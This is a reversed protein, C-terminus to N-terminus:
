SLLSPAPDTPAEVVTKQNKIWDQVLAIRKSESLLKWREFADRDMEDSPEPEKLWPAYHIGQGIAPIEINIENLGAYVDQNATDLQAVAFSLNMTGSTLIDGFPRLGKVKKGTPSIYNLPVEMAYITYTKSEDLDSSEARIKDMADNVFEQLENSYHVKSGDSVEDKFRWVDYNTGHSNNMNEYYQNFSIKGQFCLPASYSPGVSKSEGSLLGNDIGFMLQMSMDLKDWSLKTTKYHEINDKEALFMIYVSTPNEKISSFNSFTRKHALTQKSLYFDKISGSKTFLRMGTEKSKIGVVHTAINEIIPVPQANKTDTTLTFIENLTDKERLYLAAEGFERYVTVKSKNESHVGVNVDKNLLKIIKTGLEQDSFKKPLYMKFDGDSDSIWLRYNMSRFGGENVYREFENVPEDEEIIGLYEMLKSTYNITNYIHEGADHIFENFVIRGKSTLPKMGLIKAEGFNYFPTFEVSSLTESQQKEFYKALERGPDCSFDTVKMPYILAEYSPGDLNWLGDIRDYGLKVAMVQNYQTNLVLQLKVKHYPSIRNSRKEGLWTHYSQWNESNPEAILLRCFGIDEARVAGKIISFNNAFEVFLDEDGQEFLKTQVPFIRNFAGNVTRVPPQISVNKERPLPAPYVDAKGSKLTKEASEKVQDELQKLKDANEDYFRHLRISNIWAIGLNQTWTFVKWDDSFIYSTIYEKVRFLELKEQSVTGHEFKIWALIYMLGNLAFARLKFRKLLEQSTNKDKLFEGVEEYSNHTKNLDIDIKKIENLMEMNLRSLIVLNDLKDINKFYEKINHDFLTEDMVTMASKLVKGSESVVLLGRAFPALVPIFQAFNIFSDFVALQLDTEADDEKKMAEVATLRNREMAQYGFRSPSYVVDLSALYINVVVRRNVALKPNDRRIERPDDPIYIPASEGYAKVTIFKHFSEPFLAKTNEARERSVRMNIAESSVQCAHGEIEIRLQSESTLAEVLVDIVGKNDDLEQKRSNFHFLVRLGTGREDTILEVQDQADPNRSQLMSGDAIKQKAQTIAKNIRDADQYWNERLVPIKDLYDDAIVTLDKRAGVTKKKADVLSKYNDYLSKMSTATSIFSLGKDSLGSIGGSWTEAVRGSLSTFKKNEFDSMFGQIFEKGKSVSLFKESFLARAGIGREANTLNDKSLKAFHDWAEKVGFLGFYLEGTARMAEPMDDQLSDWYMQSVSNLAAIKGEEIYQGQLGGTLCGIGLQASADRVSKLTSLSNLTPSSVGEAGKDNSLYRRMGNLFQPFQYMLTEELSIMDGNIIAIKGLPSDSNFKIYERLEYSYEENVGDNKYNINSKTFSNPIEKKGIESKFKVKITYLGDDVNNSDLHFIACPESVENSEQQKFEKAKTLFEDEFKDKGFEDYSHLSVEANVYDKNSFVVAVTSVVPLIFGNLPEGKEKVETLWTNYNEKERTLEGNVDKEFPKALQELSIKTLKFNVTEGPIKDSIGRISDCLNEYNTGAQALKALMPLPPFKLNYSKNLLAHIPNSHALISYNSDSQGEKGQNGHRLSCLRYNSDTAWLEHQNSDSLSIVPILQLPRVNKLETTETLDSEDHWKPYENKRTKDNFSKNFSASFIYYNPALCKEILM